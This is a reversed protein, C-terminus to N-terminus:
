AIKVTATARSYGIMELGAQIAAELDASWESPDVDSPIILTEPSIDYVVTNGAALNTKIRNFSLQDSGLLRFNSFALSRDDGIRALTALVDHNFAHDGTESGKQLGRKLVKIGYESLDHVPHRDVTRSPNMSIRIITSAIAKLPPGEVTVYLNQEDM